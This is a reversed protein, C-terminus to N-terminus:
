KKGGKKKKTIKKKVVKKPQKFFGPQTKKMRALGGAYSIEKKEGPSLIRLLKKQVMVGKEKGPRFLYDKPGAKMRSEVVKKGKKAKVIKYSAAAERLVKKRAMYEAGKETAYAFPLKTREWKGKRRIEFTYGQKPVPKRLRVPKKVKRGLIIIPPKIKLGPRIRPKIVQRPRQIQKSVQIPRMIQVQEFVQKPVQALRPIQREGMIVKEKFLQRPLLEEKIIQVDELGLKLVPEIKLTPELKSIVRPVSVLSVEPKIIVDVRPVLSPKIVLPMLVPGLEVELATPAYLPEPLTRLGIGGVMYPIEKPAIPELVEVIPKPTKIKPLPPKPLPKLVQEQYTVQWPTKKMGAPRIFKTAVEEVDLIIPKIPEKILGRMTPTEGVARAGPFTVDKFVTDVRSIKILDTKTVPEILSVAETRAITKGPKWPTTVKIVGAKEPFLRFLKQSEIYSEIKAANEKLMKPVNKLAVPKGTIKEVLRQWELQRTKSLGELTKLDTPIGKGRIEFVTGYRKGKIAEVVLFPEEGVVEFPTFQKFPKAPTIFVEKPKAGILERFRTTKVVKIPPRVEGVVEFKGVRIPKGEKIFTAAKEFFVPETVPRIPTQTIVPTKAWRVARVAGVGSLFALSTGAEVAGKFKVQETIGPLYEASLEKKTLKSELEYGKELTREAEAYQEEYPKWIQEEFIKSAEREPHKVTQIGSVAEVGLIPLGAPTVYAGLRVAGSVVGGVKEKTIPIIKGANIADVWAQTGKKPKLEYEGGIWKGPWSKKPINKLAVGSIDTWMERVADLEWEMGEKVYSGLEGITPSYAGLAPIAEIDTVPPLKEIGKQVGEGVKQYGTKPMELVGSKSITGGARVYIDKYGQLRVRQTNYTDIRKNLKNFDRQYMSYEQRGGTFTNGQTYAGWDSEVKQQQKLIEAAKQELDTYILNIQEQARSADKIEKLSAGGLMHGIEGREQARNIADLEAPTPPRDIATGGAGYGYTPRQYTGTRPNYVERGRDYLRQQDFQRIVDQQTKTLLQQTSPLPPPAIPTPTLRPQITTPQVIGGATPQMVGTTPYRSGGGGGGGSYTPTPESDEKSPTTYVTTGGIRTGAGYSDRQIPESIKKGLYTRVKELGGGVRQGVRQIIGM